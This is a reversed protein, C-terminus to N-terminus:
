LFRVSIGPLLQGRTFVIFTRWRYEPLLLDERLASAAAILAERVKAIAQTADETGPDTRIFLAHVDSRLTRTTTPGCNDEFARTLITRSRLNPLDTEPLAAEEEDTAPYLDVMSMQDGDDGSGGTMMRYPSGDTTDCLMRCISEVTDDDADDPNSGHALLFTEVKEFPDEPLNKGLEKRQDETLDYLTELAQYAKQRRRGV